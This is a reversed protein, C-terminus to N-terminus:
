SAKKFASSISDSYASLKFDIKSPNVGHIEFAVRIGNLFTATAKSFNNGAAWTKLVDMTYTQNINIDSPIIANKAYYLNSKNKYELVIKDTRITAKTLTVTEPAHMTACQSALASFTLLVTYIFSQFMRSFYGTSKKNRAFM